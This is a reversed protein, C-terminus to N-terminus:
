KDIEHFLCSLLIDYPMDINLKAMEIGFGLLSKKILVVMRWDISEIIKILEPQENPAEPDVKCQYLSAKSCFFDLIDDNYANTSM